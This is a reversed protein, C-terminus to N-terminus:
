PSWRNVLSAVDDPSLLPLVFCPSCPDIHSLLLIFIDSPQQLVLQLFPCAPYCRQGAHIFLIMRFPTQQSAETLFWRLSTRHKLSLLKQWSPFPFWYIPNKNVYPTRTIEYSMEMFSLRENSVSHYFNCCCLSICYLRLELETYTKLQLLIWCKGYHKLHM